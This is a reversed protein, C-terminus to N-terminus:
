HLIAIIISHDGYRIKTGRSSWKSIQCQTLSSDNQSFLVSGGSSVYPTETVSFM